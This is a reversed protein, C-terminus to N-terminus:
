SASSVAQGFVENMKNRWIEPPRIAEGNRNMFAHLTYAKLLLDQGRWLEYDVRLRVLPKEKIALRIEVEDDFRCPRLYKLHAELVPMFFGLEEIKRYPLGIENLLNVRAIEMWPLYNAHYTIGMADTEAYRVRITTSSTLM